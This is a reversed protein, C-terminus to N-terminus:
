ITVSFNHIAQLDTPALRRLRAYECADAKTAFLQREVGNTLAQWRLPRDHWDGCHVARELKSVITKAM